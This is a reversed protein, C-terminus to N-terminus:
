LVKRVQVLAVLGIPRDEDAPAHALCHCCTYEKASPSLPAALGKGSESTDLGSDGSNAHSDASGSSMPEATDSTGDAGGLKEAGSSFASEPAQQISDEDAEMAAAAASEMFRRRQAALQAM